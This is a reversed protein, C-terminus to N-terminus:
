DRPIWIGDTLEFAPEYNEEEFEKLVASLVPEEVLYGQREYQERARAWQVVVAQRDSRTRVRRSLRHDGTPVFVLDNLGACSLCHARNEGSQDSVLRIQRGPGLEEGCADCSSDRSRIQFVIEEEEDEEHNSVM